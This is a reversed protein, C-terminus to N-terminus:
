QGRRKQKQKPRRPPRPDSEIRKYHPLTEVLTYPQYQQNRFFGEHKQLNSLQRLLQKAAEGTTTGCLTRVVARRHEIHQNYLLLHTALNGTLSEPLDDPFQTGIAIGVGFARGERALEQLRQSDKVRWAEDFVLLRRLARPQEGKLVYGHLRVVIFESIAAKIAETPLEHLDLVVQRRLLEEFTTSAADQEPFLELDFLPSLRNLLADNRNDASLIDVVEGFTPAEQVDNVLYRMRPNIGRSEYAAQMAQKLKAEQQDGLGFIRRLIGSLEHIQRIPQAEGRHDAVLSLPNFPLGDRDVSYVQLGSRGSFEEVAYDNKHDFVCVPLGLACAEAILARLIQTKGAGSDGTVMLGFNNLPREEQNPAWYVETGGTTYGILIKAGSTEAATSAQDDYHTVEANSAQARSAPKAAVGARPADASAKSEKSGKSAEGNTSSVAVAEFRSSAGRERLQVHGVTNGAPSKFLKAEAPNMADEGPAIVVTFILGSLDVPGDRLLGEALNVLQQRQSVDYPRSAIARYLQDCLIDRRARTVLSPSNVDLIARLTAITQDVQTVAKGELVGRRNKIGGDEDDHNKVEIAEVVVGGPTLRVAILDGRRNDANHGLVWRSSAPDDLSIILAGPHKAEYWRVAALVGLIGKAFHPNALSLGPNAKALGLVAEGSLRFLQTLVWKVNEEDPPLGAMRVADRVLEQVTEPHATFTVLDRGGESRWDLRQAGRLRLTPEVGQDVVITWMSRQALKELDRSCQSAGSRRGVFDRRPIDLTQCFIDHYAAFPATEGAIVVDLRDDIPDYKYNRPVSLPSMPPPEMVGLRIRQGSGPDFVVTLHQPHDDLYEAIQGLSREVPIVNLSGGAESLEHALHAVDEEEEDTDDSAARTRMVTAHIRVSSEDAIPNRAKLLDELAGSVSPPDVLAVRLGLGSHPMLSLLRSAIQKLCQVRFKALKRATPEAFQPLAGFSGVAILPRAHDLPVSDTAFPSLVLHPAIASPNTILPELSDYGIELLEDRNRQMVGALESWRWLHFPHTPAVIATFENNISVFVVDLTVAQALLRRAPEPSSRETLASATERIAKLAEAYSDLLRAVEAALAEDGALAMLPHDILANMAPLLKERQAAYADWHDLVSRPASGTDIARELIWRVNRESGPSFKVVDAEGKAATKLASVFDGGEKGVIIGGWCEPSLLQGFLGISQTTGTKRRVSVFDRGIKVEETDIHGEEDPTVASNFRQTAAKLGRGGSDLLLRLALADGEVREPRPAQAGGEEPEPNDNTAARWSLAAQVSELTLAKLDAIDNTLAFKLVANAVEQDSPSGEGAMTVLRDRDKGSLRQIRGVVELNRRLASWAGAPGSSKFLSDTRLLGLLYVDSREREMLAAPSKGVKDIIAALSLLRETPFEGPRRGIETWFARREPSDLKSIARQVVADRLESPTLLPLATRLSNVKEASGLAIIVSPSGRGADKDNRWRNAEAPDTTLTIKQPKRPTRKLGLLAVRARPPASRTFEELFAEVDVPPLNEAFVGLRGPASVRKVCLEALIRSCLKQAEPNM